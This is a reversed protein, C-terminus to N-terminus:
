FRKLALCIGDYEPSHGPLFSFLSVNRWKESNFIAQNFPLADKFAVNDAILLGGPKLIRYIEPLVDAYFEKEIDLFTFDFPDRMDPLQAQADGTVIEVCGALGAKQINRKARAAMSPDNEITVLHANPSRFARAMHIASYGTATGLELIHEAQTVAVLISLMEGVVPGIIPIEEQEAEQELDVLLQDRLPMLGRFYPEPHDIIDSM